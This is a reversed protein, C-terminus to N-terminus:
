PNCTKCLSTLGLTRSWELVETRSESCVKIYAGTWTRGRAPSGTITRCTSRHIRGDIPNLSRRVNVVYGSHDTLWRSYGREDSQFVAIAMVSAQGKLNTPGFRGSRVRHPAHAKARGCVHREFRLSLLPPSGSLFKSFEKATDLDRYSLDKVCTERPSKRGTGVELVGEEVVEISTADEPRQTRAHAKLTPNSVISTGVIEVSGLRSTTAELTPAAKANQSLDVRDPIPRSLERAYPPSEATGRASHHHRPGICVTRM